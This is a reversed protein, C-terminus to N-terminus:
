PAEPPTTGIVVEALARGERVVLRVQRIGKRALWAALALVGVLPLAVAILAIAFPTFNM